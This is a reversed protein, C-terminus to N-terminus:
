NANIIVRVIWLRYGFYATWSLGPVRPDPAWESGYTVPRKPASPTDVHWVLDDGAIVAIISQDAAAAVIGDVAAAAVIVDGPTARRRNSRRRRRGRGPPSTDSSDRSPPAVTFRVSNRTRLVRAALAPIRDDADFIQGARREGVGENAVVIVVNQPSRRRRDARAIDGAM